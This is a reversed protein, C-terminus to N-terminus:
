QTVAKYYYAANTVPLVLNILKQLDAAPANSVYITDSDRMWISNCLFIGDAKTLDIAYITPIEDSPNGQVKLGLNRLTEQSENRYLFVGAANARDDQMGGAKALADSLTLKFDGFVFRRDLQSLTTTQGTAGIALFHRPKRDVVIVDGQELTINQTPDAAIESLMAVDTKGHRQLTVQTEYSAYKPGAARAIAGLVREGSGDISFRIATNVDGLVSVQNAHREAFSVVVQPDLARSSLKAVISAQIEAPTRGAASVKGAYPVSIYGDPGVQQPPIQVFNGPRAAADAPIFLGGSSTEFITVALVDGIGVHADATSPSILHNGFRPATDNSVLSKVIRADVNVLAFPLEQRAQENRATIHTSGFIEARTPGSTSVFGGCGALPGSLSVAIM